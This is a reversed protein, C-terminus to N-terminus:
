DQKKDAIKDLWDSWGDPPTPTSASRWIGIPSSLFKRETLLVTGGVSEQVEVLFFRPKLGMKLSHIDDWGLLWWKGVKEPVEETWKGM